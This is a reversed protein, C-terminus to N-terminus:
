PAWYFAVPTPTQHLFARIPLAEIPGSARAQEFVRRKDQGTCLVVVWAANLLFPASLTMRPQAAGPARMPCCRIGGSGSIARALQDGKPFLSATHGDGGMGLLVVDLPVNLGDLRDALTAEGEEPTSQPTKLSLFSAAAARDSLLTARVLKANSNDDDEDVWREDALTVTVKAWDLDSKTLREFLPKPTGGGSVVLTAKGQRRIAARLRDVVADRLQDFLLERTEFHLEALNPGDQTPSM